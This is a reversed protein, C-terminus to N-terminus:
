IPKSRRWRSKFTQPTQTTQVIQIKRFKESLEESAAQYGALWAPISAEYEWGGRHHEKAYEEAMQEPTKTM